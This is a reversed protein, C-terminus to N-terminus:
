AATAVVDARNRMYALAAHVRRRVTAESMGVQRALTAYTVPATGTLGFRRAVLYRDERRLLGLLTSSAAADADHAAVERDEPMVDTLTRAPEWMLLEVVQSSPRGWEAAIEDCTAERGLEAQLRSAIARVQWWGHARKVPLGLGGLATAAADKVHARIHVLAFTAFRGRQPDFRRIAELLGLIGEQVLEARDLGTRGAQPHAVFWVLGLHARVLEHRATEGDAAIAELESKSAPVTRTLLGDLIAQAAVGAEIRSALDREAAASWPDVEAALAAAPPASRGLAPPRLRRALHAPITTM